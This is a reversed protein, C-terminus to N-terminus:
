RRPRGAAGCGCMFRAKDATVSMLTTSASSLRASNRCPSGCHCKASSFAPGATPMTGPAATEYGGPIMLMMFRMAVRRKLKNLPGAGFRRERILRVPDPRVPNDFFVVELGLDGREAPGEPGVTVQDARDGPAAVLKGALDM